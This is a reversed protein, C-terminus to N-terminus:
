FNGNILDLFLKNKQNCNKKKKKSLKTKNLKKRVKSNKSILSFLTQFIKELEDIFKDLESKM